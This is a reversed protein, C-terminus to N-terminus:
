RAYAFYRDVYEFINLLQFCIFALNNTCSLLIMVGLKEDVLDLLECVLVYHTRIEMWTAEAIVQQQLARVRRNIQQYRHTLGVSVIM